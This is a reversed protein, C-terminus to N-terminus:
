LLSVGTNEKLNSHSVYSYEALFGTAVNSPGSKFKIWYTNMNTHNTLSDTGCYVGILKGEANNERIELYNENCKDAQPIDLSKILLSIINGPSAKITWVCEVNLPYSNPYNPSAFEGSYGTLTGGCALIIGIKIHFTLLSVFNIKGNDLVSYHAVLDLGILTEKYTGNIGLHVTLANGNSVITPPTKM